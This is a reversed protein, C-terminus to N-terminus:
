KKAKAPRGRKTKALEAVIKRTRKPNAVVRWKKGKPSWGRKKKVRDDFAKNIEAVDIEGAEFPSSVSPQPQPQPGSFGWDPLNLIAAQIDALARLISERKYHM